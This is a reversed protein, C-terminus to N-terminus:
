RTPTAHIRGDPGITLRLAHRGTPDLLFAFAAAADQPAPVTQPTPQPAAQPVQAPSPADSARPAVRPNATNSTRAITSFLHKCRRNTRSIRIRISTPERQFAPIGSRKM